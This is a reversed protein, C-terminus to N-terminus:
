WKASWPCASATFKVIEGHILSVNREDYEKENRIGGHPFDVADLRDRLNNKM